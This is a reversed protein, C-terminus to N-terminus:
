AFEDDRLAPFCGHFAATFRQISLLFAIELLSQNLTIGMKNLNATNFQPGLEWWNDGPVSMTYRFGDPFQISEVKIVEAGLAGLYSTCIPGSWWMTMDLIRVGELPKSSM